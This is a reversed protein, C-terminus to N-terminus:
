DERPQTIMDVFARGDTDQVDLRTVSTGCYLEVFAHGNGLTDGYKKPYYHVAMLYRDRFLFERGDDFSVRLIEDIPDRDDVEWDWGVRWDGSFQEPKPKDAPMVASVTLYTVATLIAALATPRM